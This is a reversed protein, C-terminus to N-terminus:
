SNSQALIAELKSKAIAPDPKQMSRRMLEGMFFGILGKKGSQYAKVKDPFHALIEQIDSEIVSHDAHVILGQDEAFLRVVEIDQDLIVPLINQMASSASIDGSAVLETYCIIQVKKKNILDFSWQHDSLWSRIKQIYMNALVKPENTWHLFSDVFSAEAETNMFLLAHKPDIQFHKTFRNFYVEPLQPLKNKCAEIKEKTIKFVPLDPEPFYRYDHVSEKDRIPVNRDTKVEYSMTMAEIEGGSDLIKIQRKIEAAIAKRAYRKSNLNKIECRTGLVPSGKPKLSVNCDCRLMGKEMDATSIGIYQVMQQVADICASVEEASHLDPDTVIELLPTGARNFDLFTYHPNLDHISKGADEEMHIHHLKVPRIKDGIFTKIVGGICFPARDQTIQYGKPLDAYFYHKRDFFCEPQIEANFALGLRIAADLYHHNLVPLAGPLALSVPSISVNPNTELANSEPAFAKTLLDLQVHVELGIVLDYKESWHM